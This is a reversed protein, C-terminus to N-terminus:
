AYECGIFANWSLRLACNRSAALVLALSNRGRAQRNARRWPCRLRRQTEPLSAIWANYDLAM